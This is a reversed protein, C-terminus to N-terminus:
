DRKPKPKRGPEEFDIPAPGNGFVTGEGTALWVLSVRLAKSLRLITDVSVGSVREGSEYRSISAQEVGSAQALDSQKWGYMGRAFKIREPLGTLQPHIERKKQPARETM